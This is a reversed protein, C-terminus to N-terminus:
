KVMNTTKLLGRVYESHEKKIKNYSPSEKYADRLLNLGFPKKDSKILSWLGDFDSKDMFKIENDLYFNLDDDDQPPLAIMTPRRDIRTYFEYSRGNNLILICKNYANLVFKRM